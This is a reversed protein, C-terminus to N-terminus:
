DPARPLRVEFVVKGGEPENFARVKGQHFDVILRVVYLGLGLHHGEGGRGSTLSDFLRGELAEPIPPGTNIVRLYIMEAEQTLQLEIYGNEGTFDAANEVLKDCMQALLEPAAILMFPANVSCTFTIRCSPYVSRYGAVLHALLDAMDVRERENQAISHELRAAASMANLLRTLRTAGEGARELYVKQQESPQLEGLNDLSSRVIALPTRLEHSLKGALTELYENYHRLRQLLASYSRALDGIEDKSRSSPIEARIRGESDVVQQAARSLRRIRWSLLSAYVLLTIGALLTAATTYWLLRGMAGTTLTQVADMSQEAVLHLAVEDAEPLLIPIHVRAVLSDSRRYWFSGDVVLSEADALRGPTDAPLPPFDPRGLARRVLKRLLAESERGGQAMEVEGAAGLQWGDQAVLSLRVGPRTFVALVDAYVSEGRLVPHLILQTPPEEDMAGDSARVALGGAAWSQPMRVELAYANEVENWIGSLRHERQWVGLGLHREVYLAGPAASFLRLLAGDSLQVLVHDAQSHPRSPDFFQRHPDAVDIFLYVFGGREGLFLAVAPEANPIPQPAIAFGRWEEGYGDVVVPGLLTHIYLVPDAHFRTVGAVSAGLQAMLQPDTRLRAEVAQATARLAAQQGERLTAEMEQVYECGAWPLALTLSALLLLQRRLAM